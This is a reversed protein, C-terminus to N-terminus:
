SANATTLPARRGMCKAERLEMDRHARMWDNLRLHGALHCATENTIEPLELREGVCQQPDSSLCALVFLVYQM